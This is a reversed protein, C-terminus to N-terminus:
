DAYQFSVQVKPQTGPVTAFPIGMPEGDYLGQGFDPHGPASAGITAVYQASNADVPLKDIPTNWVNNAPFVECGSIQPQANATTVIALAILVAYSARLAM